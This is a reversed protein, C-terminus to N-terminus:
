ASFKEKAAILHLREHMVLTWIFDLVVLFNFIGHPLAKSRLASLSKGKVAKEFREMASALKEKATQLDWENSPTVAVPNQVGSPRQMAQEIEQYNISPAEDSGVGVKGKLAPPIGRALFFQSLYLHEAIQAASWGGKEPMQNFNDAPMSDFISILEARFKKWLDIYEEINEVQDPRPIM